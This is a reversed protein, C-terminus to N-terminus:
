LHTGGYRDRSAQQKPIHYYPLFKTRSFRFADRQVDVPTLPLKADSPAESCKSIKQLSPKVSLYQEFTLPRGSEM